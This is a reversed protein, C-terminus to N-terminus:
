RLIRVSCRGTAEFDRAFDGDDPIARDPDYVMFLIHDKDPYKTIDAAIGDSAKSPPTHGRVYKAEVLLDADAMTHDPVVGACAFSVTPHESRLEHHSGILAGLKTNLDREHEPRKARFLTGVAGDVIRMIAEALRVAPTRRHERAAVLALLSRPQLDGLPDDYLERMRRIGCGVSQGHKRVLGWVREILELDNTVGPVEDGLDALDSLYEQGFSEATSGAFSAAQRVYDVIATASEADPISDRIIDTAYLGPDDLDHFGSAFMGMRRDVCQFCRGCHTSDPDKQYSRTCSVSSAIFAGGNSEVLTEIVARKTKWLFPTAISFAGDAAVLRLFRQLDAMSRPHTTRSSRANAMDERRRLNLSTVGNEYVSLTESRLAQCIAFGISSYLFSRSRQTEETSRVGTFTCTFGYHHIRGPYRSELASALAKQVGKAGTQGHHSVLVLSRDTHALRSTAGSLSDLGGSFLVVEAARSESPCEFEEQDFLSTPPTSHGGEFSFSFEADGTMFELCSRLAEQVDSRRWFELDRVRTRVHIRRSWSHFEVADRAGRKVLRDAAYTYAAVELLDLIRPPIHVVRRVFSALGIKLNRGAQGPRYELVRPARLGKQGAGNCSFTVLPRTM